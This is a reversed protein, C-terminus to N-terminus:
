EDCESSSPSSDLPNPFVQQGSTIAIVPSRSSPEIEICTSQQQKLYFDNKSGLIDGTCSGSFLYRDDNSIM